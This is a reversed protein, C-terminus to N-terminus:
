RPRVALPGRVPFHSPHSIKLRFESLPQHHQARRVSAGRGIEAARAIRRVAAGGGCAGAVGEEVVTEVGWKLAEGDLRRLERGM